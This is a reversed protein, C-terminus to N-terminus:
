PSDTKRLQTVRAALAEHESFKKGGPLFKNSKKTWDGLLRHFRTYIEISSKKAIRSLVSSLVSSDSWSDMKNSLLVLIEAHPKLM